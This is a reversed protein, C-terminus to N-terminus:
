LGVQYVKGDILAMIDLWGLHSDETSGSETERRYSFDSM